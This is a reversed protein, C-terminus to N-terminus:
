TVRDMPPYPESPVFRRDKLLQDLVGWALQELPAAALLPAFRRLEAVDLPDADRKLVLANLVRLVRRVKDGVLIRESAFGFWDRYEPSDDFM